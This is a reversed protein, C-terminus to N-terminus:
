MYSWPTLEKRHNNVKSRFILSSWIKVIFALATGCAGGGQLWFQETNWLTENRKVKVQFWLQLIIMFAFIYNDNFSVLTYQIVDFITPPQLLSRPSYIRSFSQSGTLRQPLFFQLFRRVSCLFGIISALNSSLMAHKSAFGWLLLKKNSWIKTRLKLQTGKTLSPM